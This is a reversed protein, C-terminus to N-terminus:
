FFYNRKEGADKDMLRVYGETPKLIKIKLGEATNEYNKESSGRELIWGDLSNKFTPNLIYL